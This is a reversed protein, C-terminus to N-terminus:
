LNNITNLIESSIEWSEDYKFRVRPIKRIDLNKVLKRNIEPAYSALTKCLIEWNKFSSVFIDLYSLDSSIKIKSINILSFEEEIERLEELFFESIIKKSLSELKELRQKNM